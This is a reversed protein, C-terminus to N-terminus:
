ATPEALKEAQENLAAQQEAQEIETLVKAKRRKIEDDIATAKIREWLFALFLLVSFVALIAAASTYMIDFNKTALGYVFAVCAPALEPVDGTTVTPTCLLALAGLWTIRGLPSPLVRAVFLWLFVALASGGFYVRLPLEETPVGATFKNWEALAMEIYQHIQELDFQSLDFEM